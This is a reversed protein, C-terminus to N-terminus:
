KENAKPDMAERLADGVLNACLAAAIVFLAPIVWRWWYFEIVTTSQASTLMNGWSPTPEAVGFGLFSLAAESLLSSAYSLTINVIVLNFVNPLIHRWMIKNQKIGLAKAALVFDKERELLLQARILRALPMWGLLGLIVMILFIREIQSMEFGIAYSLTIAIPYFPIATFIDTVRMLLQDVIGGFYGATLGVFLAIVIQIVVAIAGVVLSIRGGHIVRTLVDRGFQDTGFIYGENGWASINNQDDVAYFQFYDAFIQQANGIDDPVELQGLDDSGWVLVEGNELLVSFNSYGSAIDKVDANIEPLTSLGNETSGWLHLNGEDDLALVNRNTATIDVINISGDKTIEPQLTAFETGRDGIVTITGDDLLLAMNNDGAAIKTIRGKVDSPLLLVSKAQTSGWIHVNGDTDLLATWQTAAAIQAVSVDPDAFVAEVNAPMITQNSGYYGWGYLVDNEDIALIHNGGCAIDVIKNNLVEEPVDFIYDSVNEQQKNPETGWIHFEGEDTIAASFSVGSSIKVINEGQLEKPVSLYNTGPKLNSNTLETYTDDIPVFMSGVFSIVFVIVFGVLGIVGLKSRFFNILITKFPTRVAEEELVNVAKSELGLFRKLMSSFSKAVKKGTSNNNNDM